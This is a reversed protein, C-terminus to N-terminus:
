VFTKSVNISGGPISAVNFSYAANCASPIIVCTGDTHHLAVFKALSSSDVVTAMTNQHKFIVKPILHAVNSHLEDQNKSIIQINLKSLSFGADCWSYKIEISLCIECYREGAEMKM